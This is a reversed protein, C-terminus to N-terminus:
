SADFAATYTVEGSPPSDAFPIRMFYEAPAGAFHMGPDTEFGFRQYYAPEGLVVCGKAGLDRLRRLGERILSQGIGQKQRDPLVSVPALGYWGQAEGDVLVPSFAVHGVVEGQEIAVLSLTLAGAERLADVIASETGSSHQAARFAAVTLQRIPHVDRPQEPRIQM